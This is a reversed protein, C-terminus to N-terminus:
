THTTYSLYLVIVNKKAILWNAFGKMARPVINRNIKLNLPLWSLHDTMIHRGWEVMVYTRNELANESAM